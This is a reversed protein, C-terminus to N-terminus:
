GYRIIENNEVDHEWDVFEVLEKDDNVTWTNWRDGSMFDYNPLVNGRMSTFTSHELEHRIPLQKHYTLTFVFWNLYSQNVFNM